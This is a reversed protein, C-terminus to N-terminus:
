ALRWGSSTQNVLGRSKLRYLQRKVTAPQAGIRMALEYVNWTGGEIELLDPLNQTRKPRLEASNDLGRRWRMYHGSCWGRAKAPRNCETCTM